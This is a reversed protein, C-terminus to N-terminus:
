FPAPGQGEVAPSGPWAPPKAPSKLMALSVPSPEALPLPVVGCALSPPGPHEGWGRQPDGLQPPSVAGGLGHERILYVRGPASTGAM